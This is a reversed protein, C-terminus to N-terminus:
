AEGGTENLLRRQATREESVLPQLLQDLISAATYSTKQPMKKLEDIKLQFLSSLKESAIVRQAVLVEILINIAALIGIIPGALKEDELWEYAM